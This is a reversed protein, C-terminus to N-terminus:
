KETDNGLYLIGTVLARSYNTTVSRKISGHLTNLHIWKDTLLQNINMFDFNQHNVSLYSYRFVYICYPGVISYYREHVFLIKQTEFSTQWKLALWGFGEDVVVELQTASYELVVTYNAVTTTKHLFQEDFRVLPFQNLQNQQFIDKGPKLGFSYPNTQTHNLRASKNQRVM